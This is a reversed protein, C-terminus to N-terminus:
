TKEKLFEEWQAQTIKDMHKPVFQKKVYKRNMDSKWRHFLQGISILTVSKMFGEDASDPYKIKEMINKLAAGKHGWARATLRSHHHFVNNRVQFGYAGKFVNRAEPPEIPLGNFDLMTVYTIGSPM